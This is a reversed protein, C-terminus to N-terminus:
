KNLIPVRMDALSFQSKKKERDSTGELKETRKQKSVGMEPYGELQRKTKIHILICSFVQHSRLNTRVKCMFALEQNM